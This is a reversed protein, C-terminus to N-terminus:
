KDGTPTHGQSHAPNAFTEPIESLKVEIQRLDHQAEHLMRLVEQYEADHRIAIFAEKKAESKRLHGRMQRFSSIAIALTCAVLAGNFFNILSDIEPM